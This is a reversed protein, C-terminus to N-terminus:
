AYKQAPPDAPSKLRAPVRTVEESGVDVLKPTHHSASRSRSNSSPVDTVFNLTEFPAVLVSSEQEEQADFLPVLATGTSSPSMKPSQRSSTTHRVESLRCRRM